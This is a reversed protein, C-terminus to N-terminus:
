DAARSRRPVYRPERRIATTQRPGRPLPESRVARKRPCLRVVMTSEMRLGFPAGPGQRRCAPPCAGRQRQTRAKALMDGKTFTQPHQGWAPPAASVPPGAYAFRWPLFGRFIHRTPADSAIPIQLSRTNQRPQNPAKEAPSRLRSPAPRGITFPLIPTARRLYFSVAVITLLAVALM